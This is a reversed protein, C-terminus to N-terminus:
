RGGVCIESSARKALRARRSITLITVVLSAVLLLALGELTM